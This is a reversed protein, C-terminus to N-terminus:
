DRRLVAFYTVNDASDQVDAALVDLNYLQAARTSALAARTFQRAEAVECAAGATDGAEQTRADIQALFRTCEALAMPHSAVVEVQELRTGPVALCHFVVPQPHVDLRTVPLSALLQEVGPVVGAISNEFPIVARDCTGEVLAACAARFDSYGVPEADPFRGLCALEGFAGPHGGYAIRM